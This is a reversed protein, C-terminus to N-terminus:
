RLDMRTQGYVQYPQKNGEDDLLFGDLPSLTWDANLRVEGVYGYMGLMCKQEEVIGFHYVGIAARQSNTAEWELVLKGGHRMGQAPRQGAATPVFRVVNGRAMIRGGDSTGLCEEPAIADLLPLVLFFCMLNM